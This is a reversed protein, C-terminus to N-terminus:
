VTNVFFFMTVLKMQYIRYCVERESRLPPINLSFFHFINGSTFFGFALDWRERRLRINTTLAVVTKSWSFKLLIFIFLTLTGFTLRFLFCTLPCFDWKVCCYTQRFFLPHKSFDHHKLWVGLNKWVGRNKLPIQSLNQFKSASIQTSLPTICCVQIILIFICMPFYFFM